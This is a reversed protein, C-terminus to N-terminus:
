EEDLFHTAPAHTQAIASRDSYFLLGNGSYRISDSEVLVAIVSIEDVRWNHRNAAHLIGSQIGNKPVFWIAKRKGQSFEPSLGSNFISEINRNHTAHYMVRTFLENM